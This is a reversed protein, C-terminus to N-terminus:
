ECPEDYMLFIDLDQMVELVMNKMQIETPDSIHTEIEEAIVNSDISPIILNGDVDFGVASESFEIESIESNYWEKFTGYMSDLFEFMEKETLKYVKESMVEKKLGAVAKNLATVQELLSDVSSKKEKSM